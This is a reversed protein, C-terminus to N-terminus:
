GAGREDRPAVIPSGLIDTTPIGARPSTWWDDWPTPDGRRLVQQSLRSDEVRLLFLERTDEQRGAIIGDMRHDFTFGSFQRGRSSAAEAGPRLFHDMLYQLWSAGGYLKEHGNWSLCCGQSCPVWQCWLSPQGRVVSDYRDVEGDSSGPEPDAPM